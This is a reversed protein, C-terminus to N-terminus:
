QMSGMEKAVLGTCSEQAWMGLSPLCWRCQPMVHVTM